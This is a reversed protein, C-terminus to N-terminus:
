EKETYYEAKDEWEPKLEVGMKEAATKNILLKLNDPYEVPIEAPKKEGKLIQAAMEGAQFGIDYYDFGFAAFGGRKVSDLEGAFVPIDEEYSIKLVSEFASVVTNDTIIYLAEVEGALSKTAQLVESSNTVTREVLELDTGELAKKVTEIQAISNSEGSNYITGLKQVDFQKEIFQITNQIADPHTDSTGTVNGGPSEISDVLGSGVPDTVSTFVIPIDSTANASAQASPTANAFILDVDQSVFNNAITQTNTKDNQANEFIWELNEGETYGNEELGAKFGETAANLSPHELIQTAGVTVKEKGGGTDSNGGDGSNGDGSTGENSGCGALALMSVVMVALLVMWTKKM